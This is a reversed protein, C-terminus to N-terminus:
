NCAVGAKVSPDFGEYSDHILKFTASVAAVGYSMDSICAHHIM